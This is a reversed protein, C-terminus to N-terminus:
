LKTDIFNHWKLVIQRKEMKYCQPCEDFLM